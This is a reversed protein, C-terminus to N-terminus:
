GELAHEAYKKAADAATSLIKIKEEKNEEIDALTKNARYLASYGAARVFGGRYKEAVKLAQNAYHVMKQSHDRQEEKMVTLLALQSYSLTLMQYIWTSVPIIITTQLSKKGYTIAMEAYSKRLDPPFFSRQAMNAYYFIPFFDVWFKWPTYLDVFIKGIEAMEQLDEVVREQLIEFRGHFSAWWDIFFLSTSLWIKDNAKRSFIIAKELYALGKDAYERQQNEDELFYLGYSCYASGMSYYIEGLVRSDDCTEIFRSIEDCKLLIDRALKKWHEEKKFPVILSTALWSDLISSLAESLYRENEIERSHKWAKDAINRSKQFSQEMEMQESCYYAAHNMTRAARSLMRTNGEQDGEKSYLGNSEIFLEHSKFFAKKVKMDSSAIIGSLYCAEGECELKEPNNGIEKFLNSAERYTKIALLNQYRYDNATEATEAARAHAYGQKKCVKAADGGREEVLFTKKVREYLKAANQWNYKKEEGRAREILEGEGLIEM